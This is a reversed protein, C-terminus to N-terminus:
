RFFRDQCDQCIASVEYEFQASADRFFEAPNSCIKCTHNIKAQALRHNIAPDSLISILEDLATMKM